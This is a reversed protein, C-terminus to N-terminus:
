SGSSAAGRPVLTALAALTALKEDATWPPGLRPLDSVRAAIEKEPVRAVRLGCLQCAEIMVERYFVGEATHIAAHSKLIAPLPPLPRPRGVLVGASKAAFARRLEEIAAVALELAEVRCRLILAEAESFPLPEAAHYPQRPGQAIALRRRELVDPLEFSGSVAVAAAWGSHARFGLAIRRHM